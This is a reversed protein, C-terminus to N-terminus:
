IDPGRLQITYFQSYSGNIGPDESSSITLIYDDKLMHLFGEGNQLFMGNDKWGKAILKTKYFSFVDALADKSGMTVNLLSRTKLEASIKDGPRKPIIQWLDDAAGPGERTQQADNMAQAMMQMLQKKQEPDMNDGMAQNMSEMMQNVDTSKVADRGPGQANTKEGKQANHRAMMAGIDMGMAAMLNHVKKYGPMLRFLKKPPTSEEINRIESMSGDGALTRLPFDFQNSEWVVMKDKFTYGAADVSMVVEKKVCLYGSVKEEGLVKESEINDLAKYGSGINKEEVPGEYVLKKDHNYVVMKDQKKFVLMSINPIPGGNKGAGPLGDIRMADGSVYIKSTSVVKGAPDLSVNDASFHKVKGHVLAQAPSSTLCLVLITFIVPIMRKKLRFQTSMTKKEKIFILDVFKFGDTCFLIVSWQRQRTGM